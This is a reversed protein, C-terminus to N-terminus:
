KAPNVVKLCDCHVCNNKREPLYGKLGPLKKEYAKKVVALENAIDHDTGGGIDFALGFYHPSHGIIMGKKNTKKWVGGVLIDRVYDFLVKAPYPPNIIVGINLLRSWAKQWVFLGESNKEEATCEMIEPFEKDVGYRVCYQIITNLQDGSTRQGSTVYAIFGAAKFEADLLAIVPTIHPTLRVSPKVILNKNDYVNM